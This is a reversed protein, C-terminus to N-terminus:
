LGYGTPWAAVPRVGRIDSPTLTEYPYAVPQGQDSISRLWYPYVEEPEIINAGRALAFDTVCDPSTINGVIEAEKYSPLCYYGRVDNHASFYWMNNYSWIDNEFTWSVPDDVPYDSMSRLWLDKGITLITRYTENILLEEELSDFNPEEKGDPDLEPESIYNMCDWLNQPFAMADIIKESITYSIGGQSELIRWEIPQIVFYYPTGLIINEGNNFCVNDNAPNAKACYYLNGNYDVINNYRRSTKNLTNILSVDDVVTQPYARVYLPGNEGNAYGTLGYGLCWGLFEEDYASTVSDAPIVESVQNSAQQQNWHPNRIKYSITSGLIVIPAIAALSLAVSLVISSVAFVRKRKVFALILVPVFGLFILVSAFLIGGDFSNVVLHSFFSIVFALACGFCSISVAYWEKKKKVIAIVLFIIAPLLFVAIYSILPGFSMM